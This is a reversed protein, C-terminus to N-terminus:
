ISIQYLLGLKVNYLIYSGAVNYTVKVLIEDAAPTLIEVNKVQLVSEDGFKDVRVAKM